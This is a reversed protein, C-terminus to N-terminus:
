CLVVALIGIAWCYFSFVTVNSRKSIFTLLKMAAFGVLAATVMGLIYPFVDATPIPNAVVDPIELVCAALITPISLIFSFKVAFQRDFGRLLGATITTGSRSLGPVVAVAQLLGVVLADAPTSAPLEKGNKALRDSIFLIVGNFILIGGVVKPYASLMEVYDKYFFTLVLPLTALIVLIVLREYPEANLKLSGKKGDRGNERIFLNGKFTKGCLSFFAPFLPIIDKRYMVLVAMLTGFHLLINFTFLGETDGVNFLSQFLALHGSSSIPLFEALGQIIGYFLAMYWKMNIISELLPAPLVQLLYHHSVLDFAPPYSGAPLVQLLIASGRSNSHRDFASRWM